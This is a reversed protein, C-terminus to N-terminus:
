LIRKAATTLARVANNFAVPEVASQGLNFENMVLDDVDAFAFIGKRGDKQISELRYGKVKLVAALVIDSTEINRIGM